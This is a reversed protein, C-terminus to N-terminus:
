RRGGEGHRHTSDMARRKASSHNHRKKASHGSRKKKSHKGQRKRPKKKAVCHAKGAETELRKGKPCRKQPPLNGSTGSPASAPSALTPPPTLSGRCAEGECPGHAIEGLGFGGDVRADYIAPAVESTGDALVESTSIFIDDGTESSGLLYSPKSGHGASILATCGVVAQCGAVGPEEWEYVDQAGNTDTPVLASKTQFVARRGGQSLNAVVAYTSTPNAKVGGASNGVSQLSANGSPVAGTPDCSLCDLRDAAADFRYIEALGNSEYGTIPARSEFILVNGDATSRSPDIALRGPGVGEAWLGLGDRQIGEATEGAVDRITLSAVFTTSSGDTLYLNQKGASPLAGLPNATSGNVVRTSTFYLTQGDEPVNVLVADGVDSLEDLAGSELDFRYINGERVYFVYRDDASFGGFQSAPKIGLFEGGSAVKVTRSDGVRVFLGETGHIGFAVANGDASVGVLEASGSPTVEGPLLSVVDTVGDSTRDYIAATGNTPAAPELQIASGELTSFIAHRGEAAIFDGEAAPDDALSGQGVLQSHGDPYRLYNTAKGGIVASGEDENGTQWFSYGHDASVGGQRPQQSEAGSPDATVTEWGSPGRTVVYTDGLAGGSAGTGPIAGGTLGFVVSDGTASSLPTAFTQAAGLGVTSPIHGNMQPPTVLEYARCDPLSSSRGARVAANPCAGEPTLNKFTTFSGQEEDSCNPAEECQNEAFIRFRYATGPALGVLGAEVTVPESGSVTSAAAQTAGAFGTAAFEESTVYEFAYRTLLGGPDISSRLKAEAYGVDGFSLSEVVPPKAEPKPVFAYAHGGSGEGSPVFLTGYNPSEQSNDIGIASTIFYAFQHELTAVFEGSETLEWVPKSAKPTRRNDVFLHGTAADVAVSILGGQSFEGDPTTSGDITRILGFPVQGEFERILSPDSVNRSKVDTAYIDGTDPDIAISISARNLIGSGISRELLENDESASGYEAIVADEPSLSEAVFLHGEEDLAMGSEENGLLHLTHEGEQETAHVVVVPPVGYEIRGEAPEYVSPDYRLITTEPSGISYVYMHGAADVLVRAAGMVSLGTIYVGKPSFVDVRGNTPLGHNFPGATSVFIDGYRDTTISTPSNFEGPHTGGPCGPDPVPDASSTSCDGTLSLTADFVHTVEEAQAATPSIISVSMTVVAALGAINRKLRSTTM